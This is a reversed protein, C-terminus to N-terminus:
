CSGGRAPPSCRGDGRRWGRSLSGPVWTGCSRRVFARCLLQRPIPTLLLLAASAPTRAICGQRCLVWAALLSAFRVDTLMWKMVIWGGCGRVSVDDEFFDRQIEKWGGLRREVNWVQKVPTLGFEATLEKYPTRCASSPCIPTFHLAAAPPRPALWDRWPAALGAEAAAGQGARKGKGAVGFLWGRGVQGGLWGGSAAPPLSASPRGPTSTSASPPPQGGCRPRRWTWTPTWWRWPASSRCPIFLSSMCQTVSPHPDRASGTSKNTSIQQQALSTHPM